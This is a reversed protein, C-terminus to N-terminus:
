VAGVKERERKMKQSTRRNRGPNPFLFNKQVEEAEDL